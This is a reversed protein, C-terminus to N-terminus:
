PRLAADSVPFPKCGVPHDRPRHCRARACGRGTFPWQFCGPSHDRRSLDSVASRHPEPICAGSERCRRERAAIQPECTPNKCYVQANIDAMAAMGVRLSIGLGTTSEIAPYSGDEPAPTVASMFVM